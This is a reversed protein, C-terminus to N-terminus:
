GTPSASRRVGLREAVRGARHDDVAVLQYDRGLCRLPFTFLFPLPKWSPAVNTNLNGAVAQHGWVPWGYPDFGPRTRAWVLIVTSLVLLGVASIVTVLAPSRWGIRSGPPSASTGAPAPTPRQETTAM